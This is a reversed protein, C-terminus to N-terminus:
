WYGATIKKKRECLRNEFAMDCYLKFRSTYYLVEGEVIRVSSPNTKM